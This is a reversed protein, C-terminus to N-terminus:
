PELKQDALARQVGPDSKLAQYFRNLNPYDEFPRPLVKNWRFMTFLYADVITRRGELVFNKGKMEQDMLEMQRHINPLAQQKIAQHQDGDPHFRFPVFFPYFAPHVNGGLNSLWHNMAYRQQLSPGPGLNAEPYKEALYQLIASAETLVSGDDEILAPVKGQPNIKLYEKHLESRPVQYTEFPKAIWHLVIHPALACSGPMFCLKM